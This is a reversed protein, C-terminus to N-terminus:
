GEVWLFGEQLPVRHKRNKWKTNRDRLKEFRYTRFGALIALEGLWRDVPIHVGYPASDGIVFCVQSGHACVRRLSRWTNRMDSFYAAVMLHYAKKGGHNLREEALDSCKQSIDDRFSADALTDLLPSLQLREISVHQSCSRVLKHRIKKHLDSWSSIEGFFALELRTADAYDYNNAYPPSTVVLGVSESDIGTCLRADGEQILGDNRSASLQFFAMDQLMHQVQQQYAEFPPMTKAKTKRPLVYQWPATGAFSCVRLICVIALWTLTSAPTNDKLGQWACRLAYLDRIAEDTYCKRILTPALSTDPTMTHAITLVRQAFNFFAQTDTHWLLKAEAIKAVFPHAELGVGRVGTHEAALVTTGVGAFPDFVFLNRLIPKRRDIIGEAWNASFGAPYRYWSHVPLAMNSVFSSSSIDTQSQTTKTTNPM